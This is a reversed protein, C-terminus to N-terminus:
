IKVSNAINQISKNLAKEDESVEQSVASMIKIYDEDNEINENAFCTMHNDAIKILSQKIKSNNEDKNWGDKNKIYMTKRKGDTCHIPRNKEHTENLHNVLVTEANVLLGYESAQYLDQLTLRINNTFDEINIADKCHENLYVNINIKNNNNNGIKPVMEQITKQQEVMMNKLEKNENLVKMMIENYTSEGSLLKKCSKECTKKHNYLSARHKYTKGCECTNDDQQIKNYKTTNHKKTLLHKEFSSKKSCSYDCKECYFNQAVKQLKKTTNEM